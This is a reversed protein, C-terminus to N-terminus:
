LDHQEEDCTLIVVLIILNYMRRCNVDRRRCRLIGCITMHPHASPQDSSRRDGWPTCIYIGIRCCLFFLSPLLGIWSLQNKFFRLFKAHYLQNMKLGTCTGSLLPLFVSTKIKEATECRLKKLSLKIISHCLNLISSIRRRVLLGRHPRM